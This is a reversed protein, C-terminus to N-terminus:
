WAYIWCQPANNDIQPHTSGDDTISTRAIRGEGYPVSSALRLSCRKPRKARRRPMSNNRRGKPNQHTPAGLVERSNDGVCDAIEDYTVCRVYSTCPDSRYWTAGKELTLHDRKKVTVKKLLPGVPNKASTFQDVKGKFLVAMSRMRLGRGFLTQKSV